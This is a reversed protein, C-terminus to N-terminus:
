LGIRYDERDALARLLLEWNVIIKLQVLVLVRFLDQFDRFTLWNLM